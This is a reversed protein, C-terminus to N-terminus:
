IFIDVPVRFFERLKKAQTKSIDRNGNLIESAAGKNGIIAALDKHRLGRHEMLAQLAELPPVQKVPFHKDEYQEILTTMLEALEREEPTPNEREDLSMLEQIMRECEADTRIPRPKTKALLRGYKAEDIRPIARASM